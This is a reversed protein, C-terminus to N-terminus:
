RPRISTVANCNIWHRILLIVLNSPYVCRRREKYKVKRREVRYSSNNSRRSNLIKKKDSEHFFALTSLFQKIIKSVFRFLSLLSLRFLIIIWRQCKQKSYLTDLSSYSAIIGAFISIVLSLELTSQRKFLNWRYSPYSWKRWCDLYLDYLFRNRKGFWGAFLNM